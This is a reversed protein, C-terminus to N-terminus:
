TRDAPAARSAVKLRPRRRAAALAALGTGLLIVTAPEPVVEQTLSEDLVDCARQTFPAAGPNSHCAEGGGAGYAAVYVNDLTGADLVGAISFMFVARAGPGCTQGTIPGLTTTGGACGGLLNNGGGATGLLDVWTFGAGAGFPTTVRRWALSGSAGAGTMTASQTAVTVPVATILPGTFTVQYLGSMATGTNPLGSGQLNALSITLATGIRVAGSMIAVTQISISSCSRLAGPTCLTWARVDAPAARTVTALLLVATVLTRLLPRM